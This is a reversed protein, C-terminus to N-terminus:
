ITEVKVMNTNGSGANIMGGTLVVRDGKELDLMEKAVKGTDQGMNRMQTLLEEIGSTDFRAM